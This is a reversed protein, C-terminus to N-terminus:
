NLHLQPSRRCCHVEPRRRRAILSRTQAFGALLASGYYGLSRCAAKCDLDVQLCMAAEAVDRSPCPEAPSTHTRPARQQPERYVSEREFARAKANLQLTSEGASAGIAGVVEAFNGEAWHTRALISRFFIELSGSLLHRSKPAAEQQRGTQVRNAEGGGGGPTLEARVCAHGVGRHVIQKNCLPARSTPM